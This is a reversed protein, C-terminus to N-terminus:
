ILWRRATSPHDLLAGIDKNTPYVNLPIRCAFTDCNELVPNAVLYDGREDNTRTPMSILLSDVPSTIFDIKLSWQLSISSTSFQPSATSPITFEFHSTSSSFTSTAMQAFIRRSYTVIENAPRKAISPDVMETTELSITIHYCKLVAKSFDINVILDEGVRYLSKSLSVSAIRKNTNGIDFNSKLPKHSEHYHYKVFFEINDRPNSPASSFSSQRSSVRLLDPSSKGSESLLEQIYARLEEHKVAAAVPDIAHHKKQHLQAFNKASSRRASVPQIIARDQKLVLPSKLDHIPQEGSRSIFPFVRFPALVIEPKPTGHDDLKQSGIVMNYFVKICKGRCSPPLNHPLELQYSFSRSEGPLLKLDVFLLSQPTSFIPFDNAPIRADLDGPQLLNGIGSTLGKLFGSQPDQRYELGQRNVVVGQTKVHEFEDANVVSDDLQFYGQIQAFGMLLSESGDTSSSNSPRSGRPRMSTQRAPHPGATDLSANRSLYLDRFTGAIQMSLRRSPFWTEESSSESASAQQSNEKPNDQPKDAKPPVVSAPRARANGSVPPKEARPAAMNRFTVIATLSEGAFVVPSQFAVDVRVNSPM